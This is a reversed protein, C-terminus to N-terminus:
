NKGKKGLKKLNRKAVKVKMRRNCMSHLDEEREQIDKCSHLKFDSFLKDYDNDEMRKDHWDDTFSILAGGVYGLDPDKHCM